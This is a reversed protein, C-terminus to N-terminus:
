KSIIRENSLEITIRRKRTIPRFFSLKMYPAWKASFYKVVLNSQRVFSLLQVSADNIAAVKIVLPDEGLLSEIAVM